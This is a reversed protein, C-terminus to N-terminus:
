YYISGGHKSPAAGNVTRISYTISAISRPSVFTTAISVVGARGYSLASSAGSSSKGKANTSRRRQHEYTHTKDPTTLEILLVLIIALTSVGAHETIIM